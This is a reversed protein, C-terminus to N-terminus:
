NYYNYNDKKKSKRKNSITSLIDNIEADMEQKEKEFIIRREILEKFYDLDMKLEDINKLIGLLRDLETSPPGNTPGSQGLDELTNMISSQIKKFFVEKIFIEIM